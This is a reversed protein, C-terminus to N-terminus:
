FNWTWSTAIHAVDTTVQVHDDYNDFLALLLVPTGNHIVVSAAVGANTSPDSLIFDRDSDSGYEVNGQIDQEVSTYGKSQFNAQLKQAAQTPDTIGKIISPSSVLIEAGLTDNSYAVIYGDEDVETYGDPVSFSFYQDSYEGAAASSTSRSRSSTTIGSDSSLGGTNSDLMSTDLKPKKKDKKGSNLANGTQLAGGSTKAETKSSGSSCAALGSVALLAVAGGAIANRLRSIRRAPLNTKAPTDM